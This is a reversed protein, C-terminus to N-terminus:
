VKTFRLLQLGLGTNVFTLKIKHLGTSLYVPRVMDTWVAAAWYNDTYPLAFNGFYDLLDITLNGATNGAGTANSISILYEGADVVNVTYVLWDDVDSGAVDNQVAYGSLLPAYGVYVRCGPDGRNARYAQAAGNTNGGVEKHWAKDEGGYDFDSAPFECVQAASLTHPIQTVGYTGMLAPTVFAPDPFMRTENMYDDFASQAITTVEIVDAVLLTDIGGQPLLHYSVNVKTTAGAALDHFILMPTNSEERLTDNTEDPYSYSAGCFTYMDPAEICIAIAQSVSASLTNLVVMAGKDADTFPKGTAEVPISKNGHEDETYIKFRYTNAITLNRIDVWSCVSDIVLRETGYEVVTKKAKSLLKAMEAASPRGPYLDIEVREDGARTGTEVFAQDYGAPYVVEKNVMEKINDYMDNNCSYLAAVIGVLIMCKKM